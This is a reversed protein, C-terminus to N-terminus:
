QRHEVPLADVGKVIVVAEESVTCAAMADRVPEHDCALRAHARAGSQTAHPRGPRTPGGPAQTPPAATRALDLHDPGTPSGSSSSPSGTGCAAVTALTDALETESSSCQPPRARQEVVPLGALAWRVRSRVTVRATGRGM